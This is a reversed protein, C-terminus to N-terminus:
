PSTRQNPPCTVPRVRTEKASMTPEDMMAAQDSMEVVRARSDVPAATRSGVDPASIGRFPM